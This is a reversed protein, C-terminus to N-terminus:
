LDIHDTGLRHLSGDIADGIRAALTGPTYPEGPPRPSFKTAIVVEDRHGLLAAGLFEESRGAGYMEATDFHTIGADLAAHVVRAAGEAQLRSGFNNCGLGVVSLKPGHHGLQRRQM